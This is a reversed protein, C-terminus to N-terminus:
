FLPFIAPARRRMRTTSSSGTVASWSASESAFL